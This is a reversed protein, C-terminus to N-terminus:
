NVMLDVLVLGADSLGRNLTEPAIGSVIVAAFLVKKEKREVNFCDDMEELKPQKCNDEQVRRDNREDILRTRPPKFM